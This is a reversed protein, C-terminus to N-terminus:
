DLALETVHAYKRVLPFKDQERPDLRHSKHKTVPKVLLAQFFTNFQHLNYGIQQSKVM